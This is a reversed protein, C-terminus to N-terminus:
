RADAHRVGLRFERGIKLERTRRNGYMLNVLARTGIIASFMSTLIGVSLTVAFGRVPGTGVIYLIVAVILTTLNADLITVVAREYGAHIAQQVSLGGRIEERIRSYVLVNADVAMGVTLVIGAIGPLTLTASLLSMVAVLLMLNVLLAIDAAIGLGRYWFLMFLLVLGLGIQVSRVGLRINEAGLSPGVTREEVFELPASLAGARLLLSLENAEQVSDLGEIQFRSGLASRIVALSIIKKQEYKEGIAVRRAEPDRTEPTRTRREIFLVGMRRGVNHRTDQHMSAGGQTDLSISVMPRGNEDFGPRANTVNDGKVISDRILWAGGQAANRFLFRERNFLPEGPRAELRFELNAFKGLVRKAQATDQVGPLEVVIRNRGHRQVLPEAVGLENVRNRLITLNQEVAYNEYDTFVSSPLSARMELEERGGQLGLEGFDEGLLERVGQRMGGDPLIRIEREGPTYEVRASLGKKRLARRLDGAYNGLINDIYAGTDVELLFHVGGSLDLGLKMPQAGLARLWQPTNEARNLAVVYAPGLAQQVQERARLQLEPSGLRLLIGREGFEHQLVPIGADRLSRLARQLMEPGLVDASSEGSIQVAPDARFVNPLAYILGLGVAALVLM